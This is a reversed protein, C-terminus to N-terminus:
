RPTPKLVGRRRGTTTVVVVATVGVAVGVALVVAVTLSDTPMLLLPPTAAAPIPMSQGFRDQEPFVFAPETTVSVAVGVSAGNTLQPPAQVPVCGVQVSVTVFSM